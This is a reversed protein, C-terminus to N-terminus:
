PVDWGFYVETRAIRDGDFGFIETNQFRTGDPRTAVYTVLVEDDVEALRRLQFDTVNTGAGPWCREFYGARHLLPDAPSSFTYGDSLLRDILDRDATTWATYLDKVLALRDAM